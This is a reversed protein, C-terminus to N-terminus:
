KTNKFMESRQVESNIKAIEPCNQILQLIDDMHFIHNEDRYLSQYIVSVMKFDTETDITWRLYSLNKTNNVNCIKFEYPHLYAYQTVHEREFNTTANNQMKSLAEMTFAEVDLGEPFSPPNNNSVFDAQSSELVDIVNDVIEPEKFPDDATIRVVIDAGFIKATEYYRELVDNESGRFYDINNDVAWSVLKDDLPNVTTAIILKDVKRAFKLRNVVHWILPKDQLEAFIKNPFRTSGCRAQIIAAIM